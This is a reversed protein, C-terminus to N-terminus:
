NIINNNCIMNDKKAKFKFKPLNHPNDFDDSQGHKPCNTGSIFQHHGFRSFNINLSKDGSHQNMM